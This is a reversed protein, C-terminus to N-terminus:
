LEKRNNQSSSAAKPQVPLCEAVSAAAATLLTKNAPLEHTPQLRGKMTAEQMKLMQRTNEEANECVTLQM